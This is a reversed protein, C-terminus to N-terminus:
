EGTKKEENCFKRVRRAGRSGKDENYFERKKKM